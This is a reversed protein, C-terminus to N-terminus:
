VDRRLKGALFWTGVYALAGIVFVVQYNFADALKGGLVPMFVAIGVLTNVTGIYRGRAEAKAVGLIHNANGLNLGAQAVGSLVFVLAYWNGAGVPMLLAAVLAAISFGLAYRIIRRSGFHSAVVSWVWNSLPAVIGVVILFNGISAKPLGIVRLAYVTFFPDALSSLATAVRYMVYAKFGPDSMITKPIAKVEDRFRSPDQPPDPPEDTLGYVNWGFTFVLASLAFILTYDFPFVLSSALIARVLFGALLALLGGWLNRIGFFRSRDAAPITKAAVEFWPLGSVGSALANILLGLLFMVLLLMHNGSFIVSSLVIFIMSMTRAFATKQYVVIKRPLHRIKSAVLLQPLLWGGVTIAPLAGIVSNSAGLTAAFSSLVISQNFFGDGMSVFWGNLVGYLYNRNWGFLRELRVFIPEFLSPAAKMGLDYRAMKPSDRLTAQLVTM